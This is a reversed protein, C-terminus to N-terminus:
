INEFEFNFDGSPSIIIKFILFTFIKDEDNFFLLDGVISVTSDSFFNSAPNNIAAITYNYKDSNLDLFLTQGGLGRYSNEVSYLIDYTQNKMTYTIRNTDEVEPDSKSTFADFDTKIWQMKDKYLKDPVM